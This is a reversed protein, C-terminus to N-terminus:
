LYQIDTVTGSEILAELAAPDTIVTRGILAEGDVVLHPLRHTVIATM